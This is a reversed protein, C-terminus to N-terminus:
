ILTLGDLSVTEELKDSSIKSFYIEEVHGRQAVEALVCSSVRDEVRGNDLTNLDPRDGKWEVDDHGKNDFNPEDPETRNATHQHHETGNAVHEVLRESGNAVHELDHVDADVSAEGMIQQYGTRPEGVSESGKRGENKASPSQFESEQDSRSNQPTSPVVETPGGRVASARRLESQFVEQLRREANALSAEMQRIMADKNKGAQSTMRELDKLEQVLAENREKLQRVEEESSRVREEAEELIAEVDELRGRFDQEKRLSVRLKEVEDWAAMDPTKIRLQFTAGGANAAAEVADRAFLLDAHDEGPDPGNDFIKANEEDSITLGLAIAADDITEDSNESVIARWFSRLGGSPQEHLVAATEDNSKGDDIFDSIEEIEADINEDRYLDPGTTKGNQASNASESDSPPPPSSTPSNPSAVPLVKRQGNREETGLQVSPRSLEPPIPRRPRRKQHLFSRPTPAPFHIPTNVRGAGIGFGQKLIHDFWEMQRATLSLKPDELDVDVEAHLGASLSNPTTHTYTAGTCLLVRVTIAIGDLIPAKSEFSLRDLEPASDGSQPNKPNLLPIMVCHVGSLKVLKRMAIATTTSHPVHSDSDEVLSVFRIKWDPGTSFARLSAVSLISVCHDDRYELKIGFMEISVNFLLRGVMTQHWDRKGFNEEATPARAKTGSPPPTDAKHPSPPIHQAALKPAAILHVNELYVEVPSSSLASWPVNVRLRGARGQHVFFPLANSNFTEARLKVDDIVLRGGGIGIGVDSPSLEAYRSAVSVLLASLTKQLM